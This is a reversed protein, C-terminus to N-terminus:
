LLVVTASGSRVVVATTIGRTHMRAIIDCCLITKSCYAWAQVVTTQGTYYGLTHSAMHERKVKAPRGQRPGGTNAGSKAETKQRAAATSSAIACQRDQATRQENNATETWDHTSARTQERKPKAHQAAVGTETAGRSPLWIAGNSQARAAVPCRLPLLSPSVAPSVRGGERMPLVPWRCAFCRPTSEQAAGGICHLRLFCSSVRVAVDAGRGGERGGPKRAVVCVCLSCLVVGGTSSVSVICSVLRELTSGAAVGLTLTVGGEGDCVLVLTAIALLRVSLSSM